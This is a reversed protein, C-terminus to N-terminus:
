AFSRELNERLLFHTAVSVAAVRLFMATALTVVSSKIFIM